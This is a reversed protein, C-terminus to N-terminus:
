AATRRLAGAKLSFSPTVTDGSTIARGAGVFAYVNWTATNDDGGANNHRSLTSANVVCGYSDAEYISGRLTFGVDCVVRAATVLSSAGTAPNGNNALGSMAVTTGPTAVNSGAYVSSWRSKDTTFDVSGIAASSFVFGFPLLFRVDNDAPFTGIEMELRLTALDAVTLAGTAGVIPGLDWLLFSVCGAAGGLTSTAGAPIPITATIADSDSPQTWLDSGVRTADAVRLFRAEKGSVVGGGGGFIGLSPGIM